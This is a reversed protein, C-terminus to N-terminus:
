SNWNTNISKLEAAHAFEIWDRLAQPGRCVAAISIKGPMWVTYVDPRLVGGSQWEIEYGFAAGLEGYDWPNTLAKIKRLAGSQQVDSVNPELNGLLTLPQHNPEHKPLRRDSDLQLSEARLRIYLAKAKSESGESLAFAKSWTAFHRGNELEVAAESWFKDDILEYPASNASVNETSASSNRETVEGGAVNALLGSLQKPQELASKNRLQNQCYLYLAVKPILMLLVGGILEIKGGGSIYSTRNEEMFIAVFLLVVVNLAIVVKLLQRMDHLRGKYAYYGIAMWFLLYISTKQGSIQMSIMTVFFMAVALVLIGWRRVVKSSM